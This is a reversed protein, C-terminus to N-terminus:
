LTPRQFEPAAIIIISGAIRQTTKPDLTIANWVNMTTVLIESLLTYLFDDNNGDNMMAVEM